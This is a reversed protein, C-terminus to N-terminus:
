TIGMETMYGKLIEVMQACRTNESAYAEMTELTAAEMAAVVEDSMPVVEFGLESGMGLVRRDNVEALNTEKWVLSPAMSKVLTQLDDPLDELAKMSLSYGDVSIPQVAPTM